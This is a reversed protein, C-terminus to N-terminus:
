PLMRPSSQRPRPPDHLTRSSLRSQCPHPIVDLTNIGANAADANATVDVDVDVDADVADNINAGAVNNNAATTTDVTSPSQRHM